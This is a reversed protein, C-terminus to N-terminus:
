FLEKLKEQFKQRNKEQFSSRLKSRENDTLQEEVKGFDKLYWMRSMARVSELEGEKVTEVISGNYGIFEDTYQVDGNKALVIALIYQADRERGKLGNMMGLLKDIREMASADKGLIRQPKRYDWKSGLGPIKIGADSTFVLLPTHKSIELAKKIANELLTEGDEEVEPIEKLEKLYHVNLNPIGELFWRMEEIKFKNNTAIIIERPLNFRIM